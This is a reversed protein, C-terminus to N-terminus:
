QEKPLSIWKIIRESYDESSDITMWTSGHVFGLVKYFHFPYVVAAIPSDEKSPKKIEYKNWGDQKVSYSQNLLTCLSTAMLRTEWENISTVDIYSDDECDRIRITSPHLPHRYVEDCEEDCVSFFRDGVSNILTDPNIECEVTKM